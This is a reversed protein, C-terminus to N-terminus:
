NTKLETGVLSTTGDMKINSEKCTLSIEEKASFVISKEANMMIDEKASITIQQSSIIEIGGGESLRIFIEGDKGTVIVEEPTMKLEKGAATRFYKHDPNSLKNSEGEDSNQRVSSTAVGEEEKNGPFYVRVHDGNEPMVYWGSNGEATYVSQYPFAHAEGENQAQDIQLHIKLKDKSIGIVVGQLSVGIIKDNYFTNQRLGRHTSLTYRHKLLGNKMETFAEYVYLLKGKFEIANGLDLVRNTEVEYYVYDEEGVEVKTNQSTYRFKDMRKRVRYNFDQLKGKSSTDFLGFYFKPTDFVSAPMLGTRLRSAIRKLFQWDTEEYQLTFKGIAAGDTAADMIDINPYGAAIQDLLQPYTMSHNQFSRSKKRIDLEHTHSIGEVELLYVGGQVMVSVNLILGSFLVSTSGQDDVQSIEVLTDSGSLRVYSDKKEEDVIGTFRVRAHENMQKTITLERLSIVEFPSVRVNKYSLAEISM